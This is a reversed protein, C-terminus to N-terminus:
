QTKINHWTKADVSLTTGHIASNYGYEIDPRFFVDNDGM